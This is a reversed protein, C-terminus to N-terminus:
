GHGVLGALVDHIPRGVQVGLLLAMTATNIMLLRAVDDLTAPKTEDEPQGESETGEDEPQGDSESEEPAIADRIAAVDDAMAGLGSLSQREDDTLSGSAVDERLGRLEELQFDSDAQLDQRLGSVEDGLTYLDLEILEQRGAITAVDDAVPSLDAAGGDAALAQGPAFAPVLGLLLFSVALRSSSPLM